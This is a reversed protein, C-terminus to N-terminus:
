TKQGRRRISEVMGPFAGEIPRMGRAICEGDRRRGGYDFFRDEDELAWRIADHGAWLRGGKWDEWITEGTLVDMMKLKNSAVKGLVRYVKRAFAALDKPMPSDGPVHLVGNDIHPPVGEREISANMHLLNSRFILVYGIPRNTMRYREPNRDSRAFEPEWAPDDPFYIDIDRECEPMSERFTLEPKEFLWHDAFRMVPFAERLAREFALEDE